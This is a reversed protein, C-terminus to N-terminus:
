LRSYVCIGGHFLGKSPRAPSKFPPCFAVDPLTRSGFWEPEQQDEWTSIPATMVLGFMPPSVTGPLPPMCFCPLAIAICCEGRLPRQPSMLDM